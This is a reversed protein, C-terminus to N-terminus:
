ALLGSFPLFPVGSLFRVLAPDFGLDQDIPDRRHSSLNSAASAISPPPVFCQMKIANPLFPPIGRRLNQVAAASNYM